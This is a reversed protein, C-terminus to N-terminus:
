DVVYAGWVESGKGYIWALTLEPECLMNQPQNVRREACEFAKRPDDFREIQMTGYVVAYERMGDENTEEVVHAVARTSLTETM